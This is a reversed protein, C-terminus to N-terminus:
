QSTIPQKDIEFLDSNRFIEKLNYKANDINIGDVLKSARIFRTDIIIDSKYRNIRVLLKNPDGM